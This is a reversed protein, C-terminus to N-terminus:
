ADESLTEIILKWQDIKEERTLSAMAPSSSPLLFYRLEAYKGPIFPLVKKQYVQQSKRGNFFVTKINPHDQFFHSFDNAEITSGVISSDLSGERVCSKLTDWVAVRHRKLIEVGVSYEQDAKYGLLSMLMPWFANRPNAYYQQLRLSEESPMSGLILIKSTIGSIPPFGNITM